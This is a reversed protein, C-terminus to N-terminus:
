KYLIAIVRRRCFVVHGVWDPLFLHHLVEIQFITKESTLPAHKNAAFTIKTNSDILAKPITFQAWM